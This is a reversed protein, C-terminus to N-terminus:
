TNKPAEAPEGPAEEVPLLNSSKEETPQSAKWGKYLARALIPLLIAWIATIGEVLWVNKLLGTQYLGASYDVALHLLIAVFFLYFPKRNTAALWVIVSLSIQVSLALIREFAGVLFMTPPTAALSALTAATQPSNAAGAGAQGTTLVLVLSSIMTVGLLLISEAGGHGIGYSLATGVGKDTRRILKFGVLRGTEEFIGAMLGGYLAYLFPNSILFGYSASGPALVVRHAASELALAFVAFVVAGTVLAVYNFKTRRRVIFVLAIPVGIGVLASAAM